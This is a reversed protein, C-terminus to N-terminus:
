AAVPRPEDFTPRAQISGASQGDLEFCTRPLFAHNFYREGSKSDHRSNSDKWAFRETSPFDLARAILSLLRWPWQQKVAGQLGRSARHYVKPGFM